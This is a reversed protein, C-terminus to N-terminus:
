VTMNHSGRSYTPVNQRLCFKAFYIRFPNDCHTL